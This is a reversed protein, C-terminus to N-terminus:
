ADGPGREGEMQPTQEYFGKKKPRLVSGAKARLSVFPSLTSGSRQQKNNNKSPSIGLARRRASIQSLRSQMRSIAVGREEMTFDFGRSQERRLGTAMDIESGHASPLQGFMSRRNSHYSPRPLMEPARDRDASFDHTDPLEQVPGDASVSPRHQYEAVRIDKARGGLRPDNLIDIDPRSTRISRMVDIDNPHYTSKWARYLNHPLLAMIYVFLWGFWYDAARFLYHDNGFAYTFFTTPPIISYIATYVWILVPGILVSFFVWGTWAHTDLGTFFNSVM